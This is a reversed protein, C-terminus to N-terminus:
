TTWSRGGSAYRTTSYTIVLSAAVSSGTSVKSTSTLYRSLLPEASIFRISAEVQRLIDARYAFRDSEVTVGAWLNAPFRRRRSYRLMEEPRKTLLQFQHRSAAEIVDLVRDRWEDNLAEWFLDSMSNVFILSPLKLSLPDHLLHPRFTLEFGQPFAPEGRMREALTEAYCFKCGESVQVCGCNPNWTYDTWIINTKNMLLRLKSDSTM